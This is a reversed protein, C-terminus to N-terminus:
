QVLAQLGNVVQEQLENWAQTSGYHKQYEPELFALVQGAFADYDVALGNDIAAALNAAARAPLPKEGAGADLLLKLDFM